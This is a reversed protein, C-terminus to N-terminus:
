AAVGTSEHKAFLDPRLEQASKGCVAAVKHLHRKPVRKWQSVAATSLGCADSIRKNANRIKMIENLVADRMGIVKGSSLNKHLLFLTGIHWTCPM